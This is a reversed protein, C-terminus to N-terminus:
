FISVLKLVIIIALGLVVFLTYNQVIGTQMKRSVRSGAQTIWGAANVLGDVIYIDILNELKSLLVTIWAIGNVTGDIIWQDFAFAVRTLAFFPKIFIVDYLEDFWYKNLLVQYLYSVREAIADASVAGRVYILYAVGIGSAGVLVSIFMVMLNSESQETGFHIYHQFWNGMMPSGPLGVLAAGIALLILPITMIKPSEHPHINHNRPNGAFTLFFLRFMYFATIFATITGILYIGIHGSRYAELLIEDKSWFGSLPPIGAIALCAIFFTIATTKMKPYLGGFERIDQMGTGHIVSGAGLFLLAKFFAHTMLHFSGATYGGVGLGMMMFGLQSITSYALVRKIDNQVLAITAAMVATITGIYMVVHM